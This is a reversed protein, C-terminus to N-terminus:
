LAGSDLKLTGGPLFTHFFQTHTLEYNEEESRLNLVQCQKTIKRDIWYSTYSDNMGM